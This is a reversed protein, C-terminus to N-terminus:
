PGLGKSRLALTLGEIAASEFADLRGTFFHDADSVVRLSWGSRASIQRAREAEGHEDRDGHIWVVAQGRTLPVEAPDFKGVPVGILLLVDPAVRKAAYLACVSGFSFGSLVFPGKRHSERALEVAALLDEVEGRGEDYRGESAGVGRFNFRLTTLGFTDSLLKATRHVVKTHM